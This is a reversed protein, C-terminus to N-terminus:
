HLAYRCVPLRRDPEDTAPRSEKVLFSDLRTSNLYSGSESRLMGLTVDSLVPKDPYEDFIVQSFIFM